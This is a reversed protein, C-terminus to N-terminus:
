WTFTFKEKPGFRRRVEARRGKLVAGLAHKGLGGTAAEATTILLGILIPRFFVAARTTM